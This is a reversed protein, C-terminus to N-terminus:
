VSPIMEGTERERLIKHVFFGSIFIMVLGNIIPQQMQMQDM